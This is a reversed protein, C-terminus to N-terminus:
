DSSVHRSTHRLYSSGDSIWMCICVCMCVYMSVYQYIILIYVYIYMYLNYSQPLLLLCVGQCWRPQTPRYGSASANGNANGYGCCSLARNIVSLTLRQELAQPDLTQVQTVTKTYTNTETPSRVVVDLPHANTSRAIAKIFTDQLPLFDKRSISLQLEFAFSPTADGLPDTCMGM